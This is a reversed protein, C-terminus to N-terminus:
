VRQNMSGIRWAVPLSPIDFLEPHELRQEEVVTLVNADYNQPSHTIGASLLFNGCCLLFNEVTAENICLLNFYAQIQKKSWTKDHIVKRIAHTWGDLLLDFDLM